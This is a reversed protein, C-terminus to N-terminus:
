RREIKKKRKKTFTVKQCRKQRQHHAAQAEPGPSARLNQALLSPKLM